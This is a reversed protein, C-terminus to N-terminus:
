TSCVSGTYVFYRYCSSVFYDPPARLRRQSGQHCHRYNFVAICWRRCMSNWDVPLQRTFRSSSCIESILEIGGIEGGPHSPSSFITGAILYDYGESEAIIAKEVSHVSKGSILNLRHARKIDIPDKESAHVGDAGAQTASSVSRNVIILARGHVLKIIRQAMLTINLESYKKSRVQVINVGNTVAAEICTLM